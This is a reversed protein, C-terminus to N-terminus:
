DLVSRAIISVLIKIGDGFVTLDFKSEAIFFIKGDSNFVFKALLRRMYDILTPYDGM